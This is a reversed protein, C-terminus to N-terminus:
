GKCLNWICYYYLLLIERKISYFLTLLVNYEGHYVTGAGLEMICGSKPGTPLGACEELRDELGLKDSQNTIVSQHGKPSGACEELM